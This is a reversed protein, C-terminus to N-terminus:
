LIERVQTWFRDLAILRPKLFSIIAPWDPEHFVNVGPLSKSIRSITQGDEDQSYLEWSWEENTEAVLLHKFQQLQDFFQKQLLTDSQRLEITISSGAQDADMRFFIDRFGTKYNIWNVPEGEANKIPRM